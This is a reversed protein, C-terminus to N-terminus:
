SRQLRESYKELSNAERHLENPGYNYLDVHQALFDETEVRSLGLLKGVQLQTLAEQRYGEIGLAELARRSLDGYAALEQAIDDPLEFTVIMSDAYCEKYKYFTM